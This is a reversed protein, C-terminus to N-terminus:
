DDGAEGVTGQRAGHGFQNLKAVLEKADEATAGWFGWAGRGLLVVPFSFGHGALTANIRLGVAPQRGASVMDFLYGDVSSTPFSALIQGDDGIIQVASSDVAIVFWIPLGGGAPIWAASSGAVTLASTLEPVRGCDLLIADPYELRALRLRKLQQARLWALLVVLGGLIVIVIAVAIWPSLM